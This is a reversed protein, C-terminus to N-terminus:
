QSLSRKNETLYLILSVMMVIVTLVSLAATLWQPIGHWFVHILVLFDVVCTSIKGHLEAGHVEKTKNLVKLNSVAQISEKVVFVALPILLVPFEWVLCLMIFGQGIKDSVPDLIKGLDSVMHLRRAVWGDTLDTLYSLLLVAVALAYQERFHYLWVFIPILLLRFASMANPITLIRHQTDATNLDSASRMMLAEERRM